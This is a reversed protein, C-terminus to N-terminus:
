LIGKSSLVTELFAQGLVIQQQRTKAPLDPFVRKSTLVPHTDHGIKDPYLALYWIQFAQMSHSLTHGLDGCELSAVFILHDNEEEDFSLIAEADRNAHKLYNQAHNLVELADKKSLGSDEIIKNRWSSGLGQKEALDAFIGYAAGALTRVALPDGDTLLLGIAVDLQRVAAESKTCTVKM